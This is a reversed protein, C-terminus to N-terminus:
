LSLASHPRGLSGAALLGAAPLHEAAVKHVSLAHSTKSARPCMPWVKLCRRFEKPLWICAKTELCFSIRKRDQLILVVMKEHITYTIATVTSVPADTAVSPPPRHSNHM